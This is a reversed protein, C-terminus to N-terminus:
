NGGGLDLVTETVSIIQAESIKALSAGGNSIFFSSLGNDTGSTLSQNVSIVKDSVDMMDDEDITLDYNRTTEDKYMFKLKVTNETTAM